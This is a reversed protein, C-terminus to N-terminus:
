RFYDRDTGQEMRKTRLNDQFTREKRNKISNPRLKKGIAKGVRSGKIAGYAAKGGQYAGYVDRATGRSTQRFQNDLQNARAMPDGGWFSGGGGQPWMSSGGYGGSSRRKSPRKGSSIPYAKGKIVVFDKSSKRKSHKKKPAGYYASLFDM